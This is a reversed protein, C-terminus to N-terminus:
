LQLGICSCWDHQYRGLRTANSVDLDADQSLYIDDYWSTEETVGGGSNQVTWSVAIEQGSFAEQPNLVSTVQLDPPPTLQM